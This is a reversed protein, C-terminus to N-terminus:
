RRPSHSAQAEAVRARTAEGPERSPRAAGGEGDEEAPGKKSPRRGGRAEQSSM